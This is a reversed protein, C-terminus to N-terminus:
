KELEGIAQDARQIIKNVMRWPLLPPTQYASQNEAFTYADTLQHYDDFEPFEGALFLYERDNVILLRYGDPANASRKEGPKPEYFRGQQDLITAISAVLLDRAANIRKAGDAEQFERRAQQLVWLRGARYAGTSDPSAPGSAVRSAVAVAPEDGGPHGIGHDPSRLTLDTSNLPRQVLEGTAPGTALEPVAVTEASSERSLLRYAVAM